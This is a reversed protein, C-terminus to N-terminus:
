GNPADELKAQIPILENGDKSPVYVVRDFDLNHDKAIRSYLERGEQQLAAGRREGNEVFMQMAMQLGALKDQHARLAAGEEPSLRVRPYQM